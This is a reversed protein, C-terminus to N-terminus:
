APRRWPPCREDRLRDITQLAAVHRKRGATRGDRACAEREPACGIRAAVDVARGVGVEIAPMSGSGPEARGVWQREDLALPEDREARDGAM